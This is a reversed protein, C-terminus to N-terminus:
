ETKKDFTSMAFKKKYQLNFKLLNTLTWSPKYVLKMLTRNAMM